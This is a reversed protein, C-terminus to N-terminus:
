KALVGLSGGPAYAGTVPSALVRYYGGRRVKLLRKFSSVSGAASATTTTVTEWRSRVLKQIQVLAGNQAPFISGTIRIRHRRGNVLRKAKLSVDLAVGEIVTASPPVNGSALVRYQTNVTPTVTFLFSGTASPVEANAPVNTFGATYPFPNQQLTVNHRTNGTGSLFGEITTASGFPVPNPLAAIALSLPISATTFSRDSGNAVGVPSSAVLRFHYSRAASLGTASISAAVNRTGSGASVPSTQLGYRNSTGYQFFYTTPQGHPNVTGTLTAADFTVARAGGTAAYPSSPAPAASAASPVLAAAAAAALAAGPLRRHLHRTNTKM